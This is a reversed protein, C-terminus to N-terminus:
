YAETTLAYKKLIEVKLTAYNRVDSIPLSQYVELAKGTLVTAVIVHWHERPWKLEEAQREFAAFFTDIEDESFRPLNKYRSLDLSNVRNQRDQEELDLMELRKQRELRELRANEEKMQAERARTLAERM